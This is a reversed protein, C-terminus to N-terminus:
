AKAFNVVFEQMAEFTYGAVLIALPARSDDEPGPRVYTAAAVVLAEGTAQTQYAESIYTQGSAALGKYWDRFAYNKGIISPTPPVIDVLDGDTEALFALGIGESAAALEQLHFAVTDRDLASGSGNGLAQILAPRRAFSEVISGLGTMHQQILASTVAANSEAREEVEARIAQRALRFTLAGMLGLPVFTIVLLVSILKRGRVGGLGTAVDRNAM